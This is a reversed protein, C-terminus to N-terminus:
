QPTVHGSMGSNGWGWSGTGPPDCTWLRWNVGEWVQCRPDCTWLRRHSTVEWVSSRHDCTWLRWALGRELGQLQSWMNETEQQGWGECGTGATVQGCAGTYLGRGTGTNNEFMWLRLCSWTRIHKVQFWIDVTELHVGNWVSCRPECM